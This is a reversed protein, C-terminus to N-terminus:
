ALKCISWSIIYCWGRISVLFENEPPFRADCEAIAEGLCGKLQADAPQPGALTGLAGVLMLGLLFTRM